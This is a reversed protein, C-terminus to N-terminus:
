NYQFCRILGDHGGSAVNVSALDNSVFAGPHFRATGCQTSHGVYRIYRECTERKWVNVSGSWGATVTFWIKIFIRSKESIHNSDPSFEAQPM